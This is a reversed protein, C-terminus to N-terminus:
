QIKRGLTGPYQFARTDILYGGPPAHKSYRVEIGRETVFNEGAGGILILLDTPRAGNWLAKLIAEELSPLAQESM